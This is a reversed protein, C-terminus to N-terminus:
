HTTMRLPGVHWTLWQHSLLTDMVTSHVSNLLQCTKGREYHIEPVLIYHNVGQSPHCHLKYKWSATQFPLYGPCTSPVSSLITTHFNMNCGNFKFAKLFNGNSIMDKEDCSNITSNFWQLIAALSPWTFTNVTHTSLGTFTQVAATWPWTVIQMAATWPVTFNQM